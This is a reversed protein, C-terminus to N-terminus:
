PPQPPTVPVLATSQTPSLVVGSPGDGSFFLITSRFFATHPTSALSWRFHVSFPFALFASPLPPEFRDGPFFFFFFRASSRVCSFLPDSFRYLRWFPYSVLSVLGHFFFVPCPLAGFFSFCLWSWFNGFFIDHLFFLYDFFATFLLCSGSMRFGCTSSFWLFFFLCRRLRRCNQVSFDGFLSFVPAALPPPSAVSGALTLVGACFSSQRVDTAFVVILRPFFNDLPVGLLIVDFSSCDLFPPNPCLKKFYLPPTVESPFFFFFNSAIATSLDM